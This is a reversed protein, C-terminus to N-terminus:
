SAPPSSTTRRRATSRTGTSRCRDTFGYFNRLQQRQTFTESVMNPDLLRANPVNRPTRRPWCRRIARPSTTTSPTPSTTTPRHRLGAPHCDINREIYPPEKTIGNPNVVVQQLVLPWVGGILVSSLVLLVLAIAPLRVSRLFAGVIFGVACIAAICMLIIKAPLVANIDTYSAGTFKGGRNSFLLDYRDFWYQVAKVLVFAASWCRCSCRRRGPSGAARGGAIRIGGFLYQTVLM